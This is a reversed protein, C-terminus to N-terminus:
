TKANEQNERKRRDKLKLAIAGDSSRLLIYNGARWSCLKTPLTTPAFSRM